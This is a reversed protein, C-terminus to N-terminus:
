NMTKQDRTLCFILSVTGDTRLGFFNLLAAQQAAVTQRLASGMEDPIFEEFSKWKVENDDIVAGFERVIFDSQLIGKKALTTSFSSLDM